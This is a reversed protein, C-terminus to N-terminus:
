TREADEGTRLRPARDPMPSAIHQELERNRQLAGTGDGNGSKKKLGGMGVAMEGGVGRGVRRGMAQWKSQWKARWFVHWVSVYRRGNLSGKQGGFCRGFIAGDAAMEVGM